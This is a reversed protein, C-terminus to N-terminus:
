CMVMVICVVVASRDITENLCLIFMEKVREIKSCCVVEIMGHIERDCFEWRMKM